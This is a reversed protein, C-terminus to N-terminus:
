QWDTMLDDLSAEFEDRTMGLAALQEDLTPELGLDQALQQERRAEDQEHEAKAEANLYDQRTM